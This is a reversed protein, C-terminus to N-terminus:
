RNEGFGAFNKGQWLLQSTDTEISYSLYFEDASSNKVFAIGIETVHLSHHM